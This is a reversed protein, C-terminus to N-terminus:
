MALGMGILRRLGAESYDANSTFLIKKGDDSIKPLIDFSRKGNREGKFDNDLRSHRSIEKVTGTKLNRLYISIDGMGWSNGWTSFVVNSENRAFDFSENGFQTSNSARIPVSDKITLVESRGNKVNIRSIGNNGENWSFGDKYSVYISAGDDSVGVIDLFRTRRFHDSWKNKDAYADLIVKGTISGQSNIIEVEGLNNYKAIHKGNKSIEANAATVTAGNVPQMEDIKLFRIESM